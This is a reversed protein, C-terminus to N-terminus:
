MSFIPVGGVFNQPEYECHVLDLSVYSTSIQWKTSLGSVETCAPSKFNSKVTVFPKLKLPSVFLTGCIYLHKVM